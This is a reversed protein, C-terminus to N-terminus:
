PFGEDGKAYQTKTDIPIIVQEIIPLLMDLNAVNNIMGNFELENDSLPLPRFGGPHVHM